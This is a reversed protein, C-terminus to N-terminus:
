CETLRSLTALLPVILFYFILLLLTPFFSIAPKALSDIAIKLSGLTTEHHAYCQSYYFVNSITDSLKLFINQTKNAVSFSMFCIVSSLLPNPHSSFCFYNYIPSLRQGAHLFIRSCLLVYHFILLLIDSFSFLFILFLILFLSFIVPLYLMYQSPICFAELSLSFLRSCYHSCWKEIIPLSFLFTSGFLSILLFLFFSSSYLKPSILDLFLYIHGSHHFCVDLPFECIVCLM